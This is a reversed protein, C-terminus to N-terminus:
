ARRSTAMQKIDASIHNHQIMTKHTSQNYTKNNTSTHDDDKQIQYNHKRQQKPPIQQCINCQRMEHTIMRTLTSSIHNMHGSTTATLDKKRMFKIKMTLVRDMSFSSSIMNISPLQIQLGATHPIQQKLYAQLVYRIMQTTMNQGKTQSKNLKRKGTTPTQRSSTTSQQNWTTAGTLQMLQPQPKTMDYCLKRAHKTFQGTPQQNRPSIRNRFTAISSQHYSTVQSKVYLGNVNIADDM